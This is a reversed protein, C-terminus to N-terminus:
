IQEFLRTNHAHAKILNILKVVDSFVSHLEPSLKRSALMERHIVCHTAECEPAVEKVRQRGHPGNSGLIFSSSENSLVCLM